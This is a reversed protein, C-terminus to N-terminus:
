FARWAEGYLDIMEKVSPVRPNLNPAGSIEADTAMNELQEEFNKQDIGFNKMSPVEFDKNIKYLGSLLKKCAVEDNDELLAFKGARSCEAYRSKAHEVSFETITPLLMANSLGHPVKFNSGLPRSMGHVLCISANSFALGGLTAALMLGERAKLDKPNKDVAYINETVLRITDLAMRDSFLTAKKSVYAEIGHTLTDIASDITLRRPKSLTLEYDIISVIPVFGEGRCSIKELNNTRTDIIVSHHTVESGTGATTPIAIIPLGKKDFTGPPKYDQIDRSYKSLVAIAKATDIPSGGGFGIVADNQNKELVEIGKLVVKDTPDPITDDFVDSKLGGKSLVEQLKKVYGFQVMQKDTVILLSKISGLIKIIEPLQNLSGKGIQLYRPV